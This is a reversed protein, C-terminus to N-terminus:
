AQAFEKAYSLFYAERARETAAVGGRDDGVRM